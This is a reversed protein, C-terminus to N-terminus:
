LTEEDCMFWVEMGALFNRDIWYKIAELSGLLTYILGLNKILGIPLPGYIYLIKRFDFYVWSM